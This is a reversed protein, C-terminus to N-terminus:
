NSWDENLYVEAQAKDKACEKEFAEVDIDVSWEGTLFKDVIEKREALMKADALPPPVNITTPSDLGKRLIAAVTDDLNKGELVARREIEQVLEDPLEIMKTM